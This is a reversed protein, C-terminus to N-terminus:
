HYHSAPLCASASTQPYPDAPDYSASTLVKKTPLLHSYPRHQCPIAALPMTCDHNVGSFTLDIRGYMSLVTLSRSSRVIERPHALPGTSKTSCNARGTGDYTPQSETPESPSCETSMRLDDVGDKTHRELVELEQRLLVRNAGVAARGGALRRGRGRLHRWNTNSQSAHRQNSNAFEEAVKGLEGLLAALLGLVVNEALQHSLLNLRAVKVLGVGDLHGEQKKNGAVRGHDVHDRQYTCALCM